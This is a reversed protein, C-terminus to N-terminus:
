RGQALIRAAQMISRYEDSPQYNLADAVLYLGICLTTLLVFCFAAHLYDSGKPLHPKDM